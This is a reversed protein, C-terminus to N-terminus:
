DKLVWGTGDFVATKGKNPGSRIETEDGKKYTRGAPAGGAPAGGAPAGGYAARLEGELTKIKADLSRARESSANTIAARQIKLLELEKNKALADEIRMGTTVTGPVRGMYNLRERVAQARAATDSLNPNNEKIDAMIAEIERDGATTRDRAAQINAVDVATLNREAAIREQMARSAAATEGTQALRAMNLKAAREREFAAVKDKEAQTELQVALGIQGDKRAQGARALEMESQRLQRQAGQLERNLRSSETGIAGFMEGLGARLGPARSLAQAAALAVLGKNQEKQGALAEREKAIDAAFPTLASAGFAESLGRVRETLAAQEEQPTRPKPAEPISRLYFGPSFMSPAGIAESETGRADDYYTEDGEDGGNRFALIGGRSMQTMSEQQSPPIQNFAGALGRRESARMAKEEAIQAMRKVDNRMIAAREAQALQMDSMKDIASEVFRDDTVSGGEAFQRSYSVGFQPSRPNRMPVTTNFGVTGEALPRSYGATLAQLERPTGAAGFSLEGEGMPQSARLQAMTPMGERRMLAAQLRGKDALYEAILEQEEKDSLASPSKRVGVRAEGGEAFMGLQKMGYMGLGLSGFSQLAGPQAAYIQQASQQGLPLGRILDSMFGLQRYPYNQENLFDQYSQTLGQQRLAQQEAGAERQMGLIDKQQGFQTQGLNGLQGAAQVATGLGQLRRTMDQNFQNAAQEYATQYGRARIDGMQTALNRQREAELLGARSGGFAGAQVAQGAQQTGLIDSSRQAERLQPAMAQEIFPSMYFGAAGPTFTGTNLAGLGAIGALGSAQGLQESPTLNAIGQQAQLQLPSFGAIREAGYTQYPQSSLAQGKALTEQAYGRAWEPLEATTTTTQPTSSGGGGGFRYVRTGDAAYGSFKNRILM